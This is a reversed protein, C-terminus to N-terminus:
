RPESLFERVLPQALLLALQLWCAVDRLAPVLTAIRAFAPLHAASPRPPHTSSPSHMVVIHTQIHVYMHRCCGERQMCTFSHTCGIRCTGSCQVRQRMTRGGGGHVKEPASHASRLLTLLESCRNLEAALPHEAGPRVVIDEEYSTVTGSIPASSVARAAAASLAAISPAVSPSGQASASPLVGPRGSCSAGPLQPPGPSATSRTPGSASAGACGRRCCPAARSGPHHLTPGGIPTIVRM